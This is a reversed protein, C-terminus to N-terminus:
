YGVNSRKREIEARALEASAFRTFPSAYDPSILRRLNIFPLLRIYSKIANSLAMETAFNRRVIEKELLSGIFNYENLLSEVHDLTIHGKNPLLPVPVQAVSADFLTRFTELKERAVKAREDKDPIQQAEDLWRALDGLADGAAQSAVVKKASQMEASILVRYTDVEFKQRQILTQERIDVIQRAVLATVGVGILALLAQLWNAADGVGMADPKAGRFAVSDKALLFAGVLLVAFLVVVVATTGVAKDKQM